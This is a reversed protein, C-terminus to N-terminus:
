TERLADNIEITVLLEIWMKGREEFSIMVVIIAKSAKRFHPLVM